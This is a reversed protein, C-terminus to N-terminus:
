PGPITVALRDVEVELGTRGAATEVCARDAPGTPEGRPALDQAALVVKSSEGTTRVELDWSGTAQVVVRLQYWTGPRFPIETRIKEPGDFYAFTGRRDARVDVIGSGPSRVQLLSADDSETVQAKVLAEVVVPGAPDPLFGRCARAGASASTTALVLTSAVDDRRVSLAGADGARIEWAAPPPDTTSWADFGDNVLWRVVAPLPTAAPGPEVPGGLRGTAYRGRDPDAALAVLGLSSGSGVAATVPHRLRPVSPSSILATGPGADFVLYDLRSRKYVVSGGNAPTTAMVYLWGADPDLAVVPDVHADRVRSFASRSWSGDVGRVLVLIQPALDGAGPVSSEGTQVALIVRGEPDAIADLHGRGSLTSTVAEEIRGASADPGALPLFSVIGEAVDTRALGVIDGGAVVTLADDPGMTGLGEPTMAPEWHYGDSSSRVVPRGDAVYAVWIRGEPGLALSLHDVGSTTLDVPLDPALRYRDTAPDFDLAQYRVASRTTSGRGGSVLAVGDDGIAAAAVAVDARDDVLTGTDLWQGAAPDFRFIRLAAAPEARLVAWWHGRATWVLRGRSTPEADISPDFSPGVTTLGTPPPPLGESPSAVPSPSTAPPESVTRLSVVAVVTLAAAVVVAALLFPPRWRRRSGSRATAEPHEPTSVKV